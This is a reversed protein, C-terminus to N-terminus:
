EQGHVGGRPMTDHTTDSRPGAARPPETTPVAAEARLGAAILDALGAPMATRLAHELARRRGAVDLCSADHCLYAGRGPLRGTTDLTVSGDPARVVRVLEAKPRATRCAM